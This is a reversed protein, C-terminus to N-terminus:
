YCSLTAKNIRFLNTNQESTHNAHEQFLTKSKIVRLFMMLILLAVWQDM